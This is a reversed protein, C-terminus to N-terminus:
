LPLASTKQSITNVQAQQSLIVSDPVPSSDFLGNKGKFNGSVLILYKLM